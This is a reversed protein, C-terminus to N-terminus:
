TTPTTPQGAKVANALADNSVKLQATLEPIRADDDSSSLKDLATLLAAFQEPDFKHVHNVTGDLTVKVHGDLTIHEAM